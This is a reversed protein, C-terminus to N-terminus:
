LWNGMLIFPGWHYPHRLEPDEGTIMEIQAARLAETKAAGGRRARYFHEMMQPTTIDAVPWLTALVARAGRKQLMAGLGEIERGNQRGGGMATECASLAVLDIGGFNFRRSRLQDLSLTSGDGLLLHSNWESEPLFIFHSAVHVVHHTALAAAFSDSTFQEDLYIHGPFIGRGTPRATGETEIIIRELEDSVSLLRQYGDVERAVGFGALRWAPAPRDKIRGQAAATHLVLAIQEVLFRGGDWLAAFPLYRLAGVPALMLTRTGSEALPAAIPAILHRHLAAAIAAFDESRSEIALRLEHIMRNLTKEDIDVERSIEFAPTTLIIVLKERGPLYHALAVDGGLMALDAQLAGLADLNLAAIEQGHDTVGAAFASLVGDLWVDFRRGADELRERVEHLREATEPAPDALAALTAEEDALAAIAEVIEDGHRQWKGELATMRAFTLRPDAGADRRLLEFLEEEKLMALVREAEGLRGADVLLGALRRYVDDHDAIFDRQMGAEPGILTGRQRQIENIAQKGFFIAAEINGVTAELESIRDFIQSRWAKGNPKMVARLARILVEKTAASDGGWFHLMSLNILSMVVDPHNEGFIRLRLTLSEEMLARADEREGALHCIVGLDGLSMAIDPHNEGLSRRRIALAEEYYRRAAPIDGAYCCLSGLNHLGLAVAPHAAGLAHRSIEVAQEFYERAEASKGLRAMTAGLNSLTQAIDPHHAGLVRRRIELARLLHRRAGAYEGAELCVVGLNNLIAAVEPHGEGHSRIRADLAGEFNKRAGAFDGMRLAVTGINGRIRAIDPHDEGNIRIQIELAQEFHGKAESFDAAQFLMVGLDNLSDAVLSHDPGFVGRRIVLAREFCERGVRYDGAEVLSCGLDHEVDAVLRDAAGLLRGASRVAAELHHVAGSPDGDMGLAYALKRRALITETADEGAVERWLDLAAALAERATQIEGAGIARDGRSTEAEAKSRDGSM